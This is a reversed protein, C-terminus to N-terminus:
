RAAGQLSGTIKSADLEFAFCVSERDGNGWSDASPYLYGLDLESTEYPEGIFTDFAELCQGVTWDQIATVGPFTDSETYDVLLYVENDHPEACDVVPVDSVEDLVEDDFCTGVELSFVNGECAALLVVLSVLLLIRKM